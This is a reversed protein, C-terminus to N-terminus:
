KTLGEVNSIPFDFMIGVNEKNLNGVIKRVCDKAIELKKEDLILFMTKNYPRGGSLMTRLYNYSVGISHEVMTQGMGQSDLITGGKIGNKDFEILLEDIHADSNLVIFLMNM